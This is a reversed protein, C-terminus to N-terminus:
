ELDNALKEPFYGYINCLPLRGYYVNTFNHRM